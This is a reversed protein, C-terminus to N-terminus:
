YFGIPQAVIELLNRVAPTTTVSRDDLVLSDNDDERVPPEEAGPTMYDITFDFDEVRVPHAMNEADSMNDLLGQELDIGQARQIIAASNMMAILRSM